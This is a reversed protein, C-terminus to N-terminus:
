KIVLVHEYTFFIFFFSEFRTGSVVVCATGESERARVHLGGLFFEFLWVPRQKARTFSSQIPANHKDIFACLFSFNNSYLLDDSDLLPAHGYPINVHMGCIIAKISTVVATISVCVSNILILILILNVEREKSAMVNAAM